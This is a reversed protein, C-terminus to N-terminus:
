EGERPRMLDFGLGIARPSQRAAAQLEPSSLLLATRGLVRPSTAQHGLWAAGLMAPIEAVGSHGAARAAVDGMAAPLITNGALRLNHSRGFARELAILVRTNADQATLGGIDEGLGKKIAAALAAKAAQETPSSAVQQMAGKAGRGYYPSSEKQLRQALKYWKIPSKTDAHESAFDSLLSELEAKDARGLMRRLRMVQPSNVFKAAEYQFAAVPTGPIARRVTEPMNEALMRLHALEVPGLGRRQAQALDLPNRSSLVGILEPLSYGHEGAARNLASAAESQRATAAAAEQVTGGPRVTEVVDALPVNKARSANAVIRRADRASARRAATAAEPSGIRRALAEEPLNVGKFEDLMRATPRLAGKMASRAAVSAAAAPIEGLGQFLMQESGSGAMRGLARLPAPETRWRDPSSPEEGMLGYLLERLGGGAAGGAGAGMIGAPAAALGASLGGGLAVGGAGGVAGGLVPLQDIYVKAVDRATMPRSPRQVAAPSRTVADAEAANFLSDNESEVAADFDADNKSM